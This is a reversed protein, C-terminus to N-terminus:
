SQGPPPRYSHDRSMRGVQIGDKFVPVNAPQHPPLEAEREALRVEAEAREDAVTAPRAPLARNNSAYGHVFGTGQQTEPDYCVDCPADYDVVGCCRDDYGDGGYSGSVEGEGRCVECVFVDEEDLLGLEPRLVSVYKM